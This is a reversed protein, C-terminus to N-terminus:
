FLGDGGFLGGDQDQGDTGFNERKKIIFRFETMDM